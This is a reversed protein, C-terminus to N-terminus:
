KKQIPIIEFTNHDREFKIRHKDFFGEQGLLGTVSPSDIFGVPLKIKELHEAQIEVTTLFVDMKGGEVGTTQQRECKKLDIGLIKAFEVSFLCNDAGSDVLSLANVSGNSGFLSVKIMPRRFAPKHPDVFNVSVSYKYKM